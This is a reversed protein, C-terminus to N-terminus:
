EAANREEESLLDHDDLYNYLTQAHCGLLKAISAKSINLALYKKIEAKHKDLKRSKNKRGKPRGLPLGAVRRRELADTTRKTVFDGEIDKILELFHVTDVLTDPTYTQNYKVLHLAIGRKALMDLVELVQLTSRALNAAEYTVLTDGKKLHSTLLRNLERKDWHIKNSQTDVVVEHVKLSKKKCYGNIEKEFDVEVNELPSAYGYVSM